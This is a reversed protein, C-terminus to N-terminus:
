LRYNSNITKGNLIIELHEKGINSWSYGEATKRANKELLNRDTRKLMKIIKDAIDMPNKPIVLAGNYGDKM